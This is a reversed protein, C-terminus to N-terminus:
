KEIRSELLGIKKMLSLGKDDSHMALSIFETVYTLLCIIM